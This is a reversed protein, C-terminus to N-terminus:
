LNQVKPLTSQLCQHPLYPYLYPNRIYTFIFSDYLFFNPLFRVNPIPDITAQVDVRVLDNESVPLFEAPPEPVFAAAAASTNIASSPGSLTINQEEIVIEEAEETRRRKLPNSENRATRPPLSTFQTARYRAAHSIIEATSTLVCIWNYAPGPPM